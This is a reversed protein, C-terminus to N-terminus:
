TPSKQTKAPHYLLVMAFCVCVIGLPYKWKGMVIEKLEAGQQDLATDDPFATAEVEDGVLRARQRRGRVSKKAAEAGM